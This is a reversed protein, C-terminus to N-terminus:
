SILKLLIILMGMNHTRLIEFERQWRDECIKRENESNQLANRLIVIQEELDSRIKELEQRTERAEKQAQEFQNLLQRSREESQQFKEEM